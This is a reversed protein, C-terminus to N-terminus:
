CHKIVIGVTGITEQLWDSESYIRCKAAQVISDHRGHKKATRRDHTPKKFSAAKTNGEVQVDDISSSEDSSLNSESGDSEPSSTSSSVTVTRRRKAQPEKEVNTKERANVLGMVIETLSQLSSALEGVSPPTSESNRPPNIPLTQDDQEEQAISGPDENFRENNLITQFHNHLRKAMQKQSGKTVLNYENCKLVLVTRALKKWEPWTRCQDALSASENRKGRKKKQRGRSSSSADM